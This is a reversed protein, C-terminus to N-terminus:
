FVDQISGMGEKHRRQIGGGWGQLAGLDIAEKGQNGRIQKERARYLSVKHGHKFTFNANFYCLIMGQLIDQSDLANKFPTRDLYM